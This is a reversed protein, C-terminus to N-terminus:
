PRNPSEFHAGISEDLDPSVLLVIKILRRLNLYAVPNWYYRSLKSLSALIRPILFRWTRLYPVYKHMFCFIILM